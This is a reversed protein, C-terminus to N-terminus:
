LLPALLTFPWEEYRITRAHSNLPHQLIWRGGGDSSVVSSSPPPRRPGTAAHDHCHLQWGSVSFEKQLRSSDMLTADNLPSVFFVSCCPILYGGMATVSSTDLAWNNLPVNFSEAAKM